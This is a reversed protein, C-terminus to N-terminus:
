SLIQRHRVQSHFAILENLEKRSYGEFAERGVLVDLLKSLPWGLPAFVVVLARVLWATHFGITLGFRACVAQPLIEGFLLSLCTSLVFAGIGGITEAGLLTLGTTCSTNALVLTCLLWNGNERLPRIGRAYKSQREDGISLFVPTELM